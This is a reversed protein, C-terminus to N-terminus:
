KGRGPTQKEEFTVSERLQRSEYRTQEIGLSKFYTLYLIFIMVPAFLMMFVTFVVITFRNGPFQEWGYGEKALVAEDVAELGTECYLCVRWSDDYTRNCKACRKM